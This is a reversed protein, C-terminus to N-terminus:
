ITRRKGFARLVEDAATQWEESIAVSQKEITPFFWVGNRGQHKHPFQTYQNSGFESGFLLKWAPKRRSGVQREGGATVVPVRDFGARVTRALQLAQSGEAVAAEQAAKALKNALKSSAKRLSKNADKPMGRFAELTERIGDIKITVSLSQKAM